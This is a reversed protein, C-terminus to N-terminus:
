GRVEGPSGQHGGSGETSSEYGLSETAYDVALLEGAVRRFGWPLTNFASRAADRLCVPCFAKLQLYVGEYGGEWSARCCTM